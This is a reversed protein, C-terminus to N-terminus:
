FGERTDWRSVNVIKGSRVVVRATWLPDFKYGWPGEVEIVGFQIAEEGTKPKVGVTRGAQVALFLEERTAFDITVFM